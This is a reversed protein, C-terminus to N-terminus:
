QTLYRRRNSNRKIITVQILNKKNHGVKQRQDENLEKEMFIKEQVREAIKEQWM